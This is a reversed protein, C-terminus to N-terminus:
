KEVDITTFMGLDAHELIHCHFAWSWENTPIFAVDIYRRWKVNVTDKWGIYEWKMGNVSVVQFFDWHLHMPHDRSTNNVMRIIYMKWKKLKIPKNTKPFIGDNITWWREWWWMMWWIMGKDWWMVWMGGLDIVIDPKNYKIKRWDPLNWKPTEIAKNSIKKWIVKITVLKNTNYYHDVIELNELKDWIKVELDYREWPWMELNYVRKPNNIISDDTAIVIANLKSLDLNYIRANSMNALRLRITDWPSVKVIKNVENNITLLNWLRWGHVADHSNWFDETLKWNRNVRYDKLVWAFEKDYKPENDDEVILLGYLWRWIQESHNKHPHFIFTWSDNVVFSYNYIWWVPIPDQTVWPVWDESNPGRIWHWHVTTEQSLSNKFNVVIKDWKKARLILPKISNWTNYTNMKTKVWKILELEVERAELEINVINWTWFKLNTAYKYNKIENKKWNELSIDSQNENINNLVNDAVKRNDLYTLKYNNMYSDIFIISFIWVIIISLILLIYSTEKKNM